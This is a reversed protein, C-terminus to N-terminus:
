LLVYVAVALLAAAPIGYKVAQTRLDSGLADMGRDSVLLPTDDTGRLVPTGGAADVAGHVSLTEGDTVPKSEISFDDLDVKTDHRNVIGSFSKLSTETTDGNLLVRPSDWLYTHFTRNRDVGGVTLESLRTGDHTELLWTPDVRVERSGDDVVFEDWEIGSAFTSKSQRIERNRFDIVNRGADPFTTRWLYMATAEDTDNWLRDSAPATEEVRVEGTVTVPDGDVLAATEANDDPFSLLLRTAAVSRIGLWLSALGFFLALVIDGADVM